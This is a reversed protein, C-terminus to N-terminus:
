FFHRLSKIKKQVKTISMVINRARNVNPFSCNLPLRYM